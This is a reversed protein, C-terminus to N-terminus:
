RNPQTLAESTAAHLVADRVAYGRERLQNTFEVVLIANKVVIGDLMLVGIFATLSRIQGVKQQVDLAATDLNTGYYFRAEVSSVGEQSDSNILEIRNV